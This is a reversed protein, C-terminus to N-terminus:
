VGGKRREPEKKAIGKLAKVQRDAESQIARLFQPDQNIEKAKQLTRVGDEVLFRDYGLITNKKNDIMKAIPTIPM